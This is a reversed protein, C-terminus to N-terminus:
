NTHTEYDSLDISYFGGQDVYFVFGGNDCCRNRKTWRICEDVLEDTATDLLGLVARDYSWQWAPVADINDDDIDLHFCADWFAKDLEEQRDAKCTAIAEILWAPRQAMLGREFSEWAEPAHSIEWTM